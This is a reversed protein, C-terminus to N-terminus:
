LRSLLEAKKAAFEEETLIGENKLEALGRLLALPDGAPKAPSMSPKDASAHGPMESTSRSRATDEGHATHMYAAEPEAQEQRAPIEGSSSTSPSASRTPEVTAESLSPSPYAPGQTQSQFSGANSSPVKSQSQSAPETSIRDDASGVRESAMSNAEEVTGGDVVRLDAPEISGLQSSFRLSSTGGQQQSVGGIQHQGTDYVTVRGGTEIALRASGPFVAYRIGNQAGSSSPQGLEEPWWGSQSGFGFGDSRATRMPLDGRALSGSVMDALAAVRGKLQNNFMDGIMLMGGASWQGFGGLEFHNFQAMTGGGARLAEIMARVADESFGTSSAIRAIEQADDM